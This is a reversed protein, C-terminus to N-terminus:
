RSLRLALGVLVSAGGVWCLIPNYPNSKGVFQAVNQTLGCIGAQSYICSTVRTLSSGVHQVIPGYFSAWWFVAGILLLIGLVLFSNGLSKAKM